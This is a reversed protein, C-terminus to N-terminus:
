PKLTKARQKQKRTACRIVPRGCRRHKKKRPFNHSAKKSTRDSEDVAINVKGNQTWYGKLSAVHEALSQTMLKVLQPGCTALAKMLGQRTVSEDSDFVHGVVQCAERVRETLTGETMWGWCTIAVSSLWAPDLQANGHRAFSAVAEPVATELMAKFTAINRRLHVDDQHSM